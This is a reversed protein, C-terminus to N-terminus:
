KETVKGVVGKAVGGVRDTLKYEDNLEVVRDVGIEVLDGVSDLMTGAGGVLDYDDNLEEVKSAIGGLTSELTVIADGAPSDAEKAKDVVKELMSLLSDVVKNDKEFQALFNYALLATQSATDVVKKASTTTTSSRDEEKRSLYNFISGGVAALVPGGLILGAAAGLTGATVKPCLFSINNAYLLLRAFDSYVEFLHFSGFFCNM